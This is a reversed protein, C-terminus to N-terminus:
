TLVGPEDNLRDGIARSETDLDRRVSKSVGECGVKKSATGINSDHLLQQAMGRDRGSLDIRQHGDIGESVHVCRRM